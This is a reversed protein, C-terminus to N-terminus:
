FQMYLFQSADYEGGYLGYIFISFLIVYYIGWRIVLPKSDIKGQVSIGKEEMFSVIFMLALGFGLVGIDSPKWGVSQLVSIGSFSFDHALKWIAVKIDHLNNTVVMIDAVLVLCCTRIICFIKYFIAETNIKLRKRINAFFDEFLISVCILLCYYMGWLFYNVSFNHWLSTGVWVIFTGVIAPAKKGLKKNCKRFSKGIKRGTKSMIFQFMVYDRFWLGLTIHWRRWFEAINMSFYPQQFNEPILVRFTSSVGIMMDMYGSFDAYLQIAYACTALIIHLGNVGNLDSYVYNVLLALREAVVLKKFAGWMFRQIGHVTIIYDFSWKKGLNDKFQQYRNFPGQSVAPFYILFLVYKFYNNERREPNRDADILYGIAKLTFYSNGLLALVSVMRGLVLMLVCSASIVRRVLDVVHDSQGGGM